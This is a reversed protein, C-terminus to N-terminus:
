DENGTSTLDLVQFARWSWSTVSSNGSVKFRIRRFPPTKISLKDYLFKKLSGAPRWTNAGGTTGYRPDNAPTLNDTDIQFSVNLGAANEHIAGIQSMVKRDEPTDFYYWHTVFSNYVPVDGSVANDEENFGNDYQYLGGDDGGMFVQVRGFLEINDYLVGGLMKTPYTYMTWAKTKISRRLVANSYTIGELTVDGISWYLNTKDCWGAITTYITPEIARIIDRIPESIDEANEGDFRYFGSHHHFYIGDYAEIVSEQSYTGVAVTPEPDVNNIAYVRYLHERKFVLLMRKTAHLATIKDGDAPSIQIFDDGGTITNSTTVVDSYYLKDTEDDAAWIRNRFVAIHSLGAIFSATNVVGLSGTGPWSQMASSGDVMFIYDVLSAFRVKNTAHCTGLSSSGSIGGSSYISTGSAAVVQKTTGANNYFAGIGHVSSGLAVRYRAGMRPRIVGVNDFHVNVALQLSDAPAILSDVSWERVMGNVPQPLIQKM